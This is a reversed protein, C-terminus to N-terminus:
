FPPTSSAVETSVNELEVIGLDALSLGETEAIKAVEKKVMANFLSESSGAFVRAKEAMSKFVATARVTKVLLPSGDANTQLKYNGNADKVIVGNADKVSPQIEKEMAMVEFPFKVKDGVNFGASQMTKSPIHIRDVEGSVTYATFNGSDKVWDGSVITFGKANM